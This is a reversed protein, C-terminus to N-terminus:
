RRPLAPLPSTHADVSVQVGVAPWEHVSTATAPDPTPTCGGAAPWEHVSGNAQGPSPPAEGNLDWVPGSDLRSISCDPRSAFYQCGEEGGPGWLWLEGSSIHLSFQSNSYLVVYGHGDLLTGTPITYAPAAGPQGRALSWGGADCPADDPNYLEVWQDSISQQCDHNWDIEAPRPLLENLRLHACQGAQAQPARHASSAPLLALLLIVVSAHHIKM